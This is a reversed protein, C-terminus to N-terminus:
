RGGHRKGLRRDLSRGLAELRSLDVQSKAQSKALLEVLCSSRPDDLHAAVWALPSSVAEYQMTLEVDKIRKVIGDLVSRASPDEPHALARRMSAWEPKSIADGIIVQKALLKTKRDLREKGGVWYTREWEEEKEIDSLGLVLLADWLGDSDIAANTTKTNADLQEDLEKSRAKEDREISKEQSSHNHKFFILNERVGSAAIVQQLKATREAVGAAQCHPVGSAVKRARAVGEAMVTLYSTCETAHISSERIAQKRAAECQPMSQYSTSHVETVGTLPDPDRISHMYWFVNEYEACVQGKSYEECAARTLECGGGPKCWWAYSTQSTMLSALVAVSAHLTLNM